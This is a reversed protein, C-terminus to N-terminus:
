EIGSDVEFLWAHAEDLSLFPRYQAAIDLDELQNEVVRGLGYDLENGLVFATRDGSKAFKKQALTLNKMLLPSPINAWSSQTLDWLM